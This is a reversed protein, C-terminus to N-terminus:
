GTSARTAADFDPARWYHAPMDDRAPQLFRRQNPTLGSFRLAYASEWDVALEGMAKRWGKPRVDPLVPLPLRLADRWATACTSPSASTARSCSTAATAAWCSRSTASPARARPVVDSVVVSRRVARRPDRRDGRLRRSDDDARRHAREAPRARAATAAADESEDLARARFRRRSRACAARHGTAALRCAITGSDIGGSLFLGLPRDAVLRLEIAEDLLARTTARGAGPQPTWYRHVRLRTRDCPRSSGIRTPCARSTRSSRARRPFTAIRSTRTSRRRRFRASTRAAAVAARQARTSGFAFGSEDHAYVIPKLGMRDRVVHVRKRASTSSRSRSCAACARCCRGRHGVGRLRAPHVRHRVVHRLARRAGRARARRAQWGYVEGNYCIWVTGDDNRMPQDAVPRPDIISLRTHVLGVARVCRRAAARGRADFAADHQADPGRRALAARMRARVDPGRPRGFHGAIGCM